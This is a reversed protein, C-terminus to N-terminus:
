IIGEMEIRIFFRNNEKLFDFDFVKVVAQIDYKIIKYIKPIGTGGEKRVKGLYQNSEILEKARQIKFEKESINEICNTDNEIYISVNGENNSLLLDINIIGNEQEANESVNKLLNYFIDDFYRLLKGTILEGEESSLKKVRFCLEPHLEKITQLAMEFAFNLRFDNYDGGRPLEFWYQVRNIVNHMDNQAEEAAHRIESMRSSNRMGSISEKLKNYADDFDSLIESCIVDKVNQLNRKTLDWMYKVVIDFLEEYEKTEVLMLSLHLYDTDSLEYNFLGNNKNDETCIQLYDEKLKKITGFFNEYFMGFARQLIKHDTETEYKTWYDDYIYETNVPNKKVVLRNKLNPGNLEDDIIGHRINISLHTELGYAPSSVFANRISSIMEKLIREPTDTIKYINEATEEEVTLTLHSLREDIYFMYRQFDNNGESIMQKKIGDTNVQIKDDEIKRLETSLSLKQSIEHIENEYDKINEPDIKILHKCISIREKDCDQSTAFQYISDAMIGVTCIDRYFFSIINNDYTNLKDFLDSPYVAGNEELFEDFVFAFDDMKDASVYSVYIYYLIVTYLSGYSSIDEEIANALRSWPIIMAYFINDVSMKALLPSIDEYYRHLDINGLFYKMCMIAISAGPGEMSPMRKIIDIPSLNEDRVCLSNIVLPIKCINTASIIDNSYISLIFNDYEDLPDSKILLYEKADDPNMVAFVTEVDLSQINRVINDHANDEANEQVRYSMDAMVSSAWSSFSCSMALKSLDMMSDDRMQDLKYISKLDQIMNGLNTGPFYVTNDESLIVLEVLLRIAESNNPFLNLFEIISEKATQIEGTIFQNKAYDLRTKLEYKERNSTEKDLIFRLATLQGDQIEDLLFSYRRISTVVPAEDVDINDTLIKIIFNYRDVIPCDRMVECIKLFESSDYKQTLSLLLYSFFEISSSINEVSNREALETERKVAGVFEDTTVGERNKFVYFSIVSGFVNNPLRKILDENNIGLMTELFLRVEIGWFSLGNECEFDNLLDLADKYKNLLIADDIKERVSIYNNILSAEDQICSLMWRVEFNVNKSFNVLCPKAILEYSDGRSNGSVCRRSIGTRAITLFEDRFVEDNPEMLLDFLHNRLKPYCKAINKKNNQRASIDLSACLSKVAAARNGM